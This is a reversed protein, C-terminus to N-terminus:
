SGLHEEVTKILDAVRFPKPLCGDAGIQQAREQADAAATCVVLPAKAGPLSRYAAAFEWGDMVPMRMDLLILSPPRSEALELAAAGNEAQDVVYGFGVLAASVLSRIAADDDVVLIRWEDAM